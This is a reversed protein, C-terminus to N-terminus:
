QLRPAGRNLRFDARLRRFLELTREIREAPRRFNNEASLKEVPYGGSTWLIQVPWEGARSPPGTCVFEQLSRNLLRCLHLHRRWRATLPGPTRASCRAWGTPSCSRYSTRVRIGTCRRRSRGRTCRTSSSPWTGPRSPSGPVKHVTGLRALPADLGGGPPVVFPRVPLTSSM